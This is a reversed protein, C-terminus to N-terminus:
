FFSQQPPNHAPANLTKYVFSGQPWFKPKLKKLLDIESDSANLMAKIPQQTEIAKRVDAFKRRIAQRVLERCESLFLHEKQHITLNDLFRDNKFQSWLLPQANYHAM